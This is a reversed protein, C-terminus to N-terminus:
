CFCKFFVPSFIWVVISFSLCFLRPKLFRMGIPLTIKTLTYMCTFYHVCYTIFLFVTKVSFSYISILNIVCKKLSKNILVNQVKYNIFGRYNVFYIKQFLTCLIIKILVFVHSIFNSVKIKSYINIIDHM